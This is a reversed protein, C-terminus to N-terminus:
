GIFNGEISVKLPSARVQWDTKAASATLVGAVPKRCIM